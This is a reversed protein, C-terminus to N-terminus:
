KNQEKMLSITIHDHYEKLGVRQILEEITEGSVPEHSICVDAAHDGRFHDTYHTIAIKM